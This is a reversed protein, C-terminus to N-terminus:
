SLLSLKPAGADLSVASAISTVKAHTVLIDRVRYSGGRGEGRRGVGRGEGRRGVVYETSPLYGKGRWPAGGGTGEVGKSKAHQTAYQRSQIGQQRWCHICTLESEPVPARTPPSGDQCGLRTESLGQQHLQLLIM